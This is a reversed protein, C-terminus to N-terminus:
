EEWEIFGSVTQGQTTATLVLGFGTGGAAIMQGDPFNEALTSQPHFGTKLLNDSAYTPEASYNVKAVAQPTESGPGVLVETAATGTGDATLKRLAAKVPVHTGDTSVTHCRLRRLRLRQNTPAVIAVVTKATGASISVAEFSVACVMGAM